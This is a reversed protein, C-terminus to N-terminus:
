LNSQSAPTEGAKRKTVFYMEMEGKGKASVLGRSECEFQDKIIEYTSASINIKGEEGSSEMRSATNVTDGWIDFAFKKMGVVGSVVGGYHIGIRVQFYPRNEKERQSKYEDMFQIIELAADVMDVPNKSTDPNLGTACMYADGITKIKEINHKEMIEDYARFCHDLEAVLDEASLEEAIETFGKFDSFLVTARGHQRAKVKGYEKLENATTEPLINLLLNESRRREFEIIINKDELQKNKEELGKRSMYKIIFRVVTGLILLVVLATAAIFWWEAYFPKHIKFSVQAPVPSQRGDISLAVVQFTYDGPRLAEFQIENLSTNSWKKSLGLMRYRYKTNKGQEFAIGSFAIQIKNQDYSLEYHAQLLTDLDNIKLGLIYGQPAVHTRNAMRPIISIGADTAVFLGTDAFAIDNIYNSLLGDNVGFNDVLPVLEGKRFTLRNLGHNTGLWVTSDNEKKLQHCVDSSIGIEDTTWLLFEGGNSYVLGEATAFLTVSDGLSVMSRVRGNLMEPLVGPEFESVTNGDYRRLGQNTGLLISDYDIVQLSITRKDYLRAPTGPDSNSLSYLGTATGYYLSDGFISLCKVAGQYEHQLQLSKPDLAFLAKDTGVWLYKDISIDILRNYAHNSLAISSTDSISWQQLRGNQYGILLNAGAGPMLSYVHNFMLGSQVDLLSIQAHPKMIVGHGLTSYWHNSEHDIHHDTVQYGDLQIVKKDAKYNSDIKIPDSLLPMFDGWTIQMEYTNAGSRYRIKKSSVQTLEINRHPCDLLGSTDRSYFAIKRDKQTGIWINMDGDQILNTFTSRIIMNDLKADKEANVMRYTQYDYYSLRGNFPFFWLRDEQDPVIKFIENDGLGSKKSFNIFRIGDFKSVGAETGFWIFGTHDQYIDYVTSSVM